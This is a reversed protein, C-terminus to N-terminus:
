MHTRWVTLFAPGSCKVNEKEEPPDAVKKVRDGTSQRLQSRYGTPAVSKMENVELDVVCRIVSNERM